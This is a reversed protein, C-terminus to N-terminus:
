NVGGETVTPDVVPTEEFLTDFPIESYDGSDDSMEVDEGSCGWTVNDDESATGWVINDIDGMTGWVINDIGEATGWVINDRLATGWVINDLASVATGWVINQCDGGDCETGWVINDDSATGWVINDGLFTGWVINDLSDLTTGWVINDRQFTGWVINDDSLGYTTGWVINDALMGVNTGWVVNDCGQRGCSTGWVINDGFADRLTGWVINSAWASANPMIVGGTLRHNGWIISKSWGYATPYRSGTPHSGFYSALTVAGQANLFGAGQTLFDIGPRVQATYQLIAKVANPTLAPNAQLMLAVTGTVVPAAMSTGTLSLYPMSATSRYGSVLFDAKASYLTSGPSALSVIGTGPAVLDPKASYDHATPGRSSYSAMVDDYRVLTGQHSYAGVTLVWPANGPATIAGYQTQGAANKGLNGAAAVVVIGADVARKVALTLPDNWYSTTVAAGVSMNMVRINYADKNAIAWDVAAIVNSIYGAANADLVKLAVIHASPAMGARAGFSDYGNGAVTGAVHTGHGNDDYPTTLGNVFDVFAAVRQGGVVQVASSTGNYTLDDHWPTIGSDVLAVGIGAGKYGMLTQVTRAGSIVAARNMEGGTPRDLYISKVLPSKELQALQRATVVAVTGPFAILQRLKRGGIMKVTKDGSLGSHDVTEIIVRYEGTGRGSRLHDDLAEDKKGRPGANAPACWAFVAAMMVIATWTRKQRWFTM